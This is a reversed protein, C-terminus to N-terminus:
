PGRGDPQVTFQDAKMPLRVQVERAHHREVEVFVEGHLRVVRLTVPAPHLLREEVVDVDGRLVNVNRVAGDGDVLGLIVTGAVLLLNAAGATDVQLHEADATGAVDGEVLRARRPVTARAQDREVRDRAAIRGTGEETLLVHGLLRQRHANAGDQ